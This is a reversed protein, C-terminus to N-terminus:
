NLKDTDDSSTEVNPTRESPSSAVIEANNVTRIVAKVTRSLRLNKAEIWPYLEAWKRIIMELKSNVWM